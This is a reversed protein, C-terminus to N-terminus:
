IELNFYIRLLDFKENRFFDNVQDAGFPAINAKVAGVGLAVISLGGYVAYICKNSDGNHGCLTPKGQYANNALPPPVLLPFFVYGGVYVLLFVIITRFRNLGADAVFGGFLASIYSLGMFFYLADLAETSAWGLPKLNLFMVLNCTLGYFAIRELMETLLVTACAFKTKWTQLSFAPDSDTSIGRLLPTRESETM